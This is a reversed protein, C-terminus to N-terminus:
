TTFFTVVNTLVLAIIDLERPKLSFIENSSYSLVLYSISVVIVNFLLAIGISREVIYLKPNRDRFLILLFIASLISYCGVWFM